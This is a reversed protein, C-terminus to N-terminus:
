FTDDETNIEKNVSILPYWHDESWYILLEQKKNGRVIECEEGEGLKYM